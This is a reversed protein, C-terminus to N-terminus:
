AAEHAGSVNGRHSQFRSYIHGPEDGKFRAEAAASTPYVFGSNFFIAESTEGHQSRETGGHVMLTEASLNKRDGMPNTKLTM